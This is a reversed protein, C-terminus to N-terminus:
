SGKIISIHETGGRSPQGSALLLISNTFNRYMSIYHWHHPLWYMECLIRSIQVSFFSSALDPICCWHTQTINSLCVLLLRAKFVSLCTGSFLNEWSHRGTVHRPFADQFWLNFHMEMRLLLLLDYVTSTEQNKEGDTPCNGCLNDTDRPQMILATYPLNLVEPQWRVERLQAHHKWTIGCKQKNNCGSVLVSPYPYKQVNIRWANKELLRHKGSLSHIVMSVLIAALCHANQDMHSNLSKEHYGGWHEYRKHLGHVLLSEICAATNSTQSWFGQWHNQCFITPATYITDRRCIWHHYKLCPAFM